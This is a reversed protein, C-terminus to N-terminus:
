YGRWMARLVRDSGSQVPLHMHECLAPCEGMAHLVRETHHVPHSSTFRLRKLAPIASLRRLLAAFDCTPGNKKGYANVTQGLLTVEVVGLDVLHEVEAVIEEFPRNRELGRVAPVVCFTCRHDCGEMIKVWAKFGHPHEGTLEPVGVGDHGIAVQPLNEEWVREVLRPLQLLNSPSLVIDIHPFRQRLRRGQAEAVCGTLALIRDPREERWVKLRGLMSLARQEAHGRIHCTNILVIQADEVRNAPNLGQRTLLQAMIESDRENMQCGFTHIYFSKATMM